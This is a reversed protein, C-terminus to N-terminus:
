LASRYVEAGGAVFTENEGAGRALELAEEVSTVISCGDASFSPNRTVVIMRRGPLARGISQFTKRGVVLHHGMTLRKFRQLDASLRWPLRNDKGIGGREDM